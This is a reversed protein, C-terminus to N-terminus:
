DRRAIAGCAQALQAPVEENAMLEGPEYACFSLSFAPDWHLSEAICGFQEHILRYQPNDLGNAGVVVVGIRKRMTKFEANRSYFKDVVMKLQASMGWWYVPTGFIVADAQAIKQIVADSQDPRVCHGGNKKCGDCACCGSLTLSCVDVLEVTNGDALTSAMMQLAARTNGHRRPSGNLILINMTREDKRQTETQLSGPHKGTRM